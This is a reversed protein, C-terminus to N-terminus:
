LELRADSALKSSQIQDKSNGQNKSRPEQIKRRLPMPVLAPVERRFRVYEDGFEGTLLAEERRLKLVIGVAIVIFGVIADGTGAALAAGLVGTLFGTYIPHRALRYPGTRILRHGEKLTVYGSWYRGLHVRAWVSFMLGAATLIAGAIKVAATEYLRGYILYDHHFVLFFGVALPLVHKMRQLWSETQKTRAVFLAVANWYIFWAVWLWACITLPTIYRM